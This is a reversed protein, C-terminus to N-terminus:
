AEGEVINVIFHDGENEFECEGLFTESPECELHKGDPGYLSFEMWANNQGSLVEAFYRTGESFLGEAEWLPCDFEIRLDDRKKQSVRGYDNINLIDQMRKAVAPSVRIEVRYNSM